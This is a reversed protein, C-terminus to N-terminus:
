LDEEAPPQGTEIGTRHRWIAQQWTERQEEYRLENRALRINRTDEVPIMVLTLPAFQLDIKNGKGGHRSKGIKMHVVGTRENPMKGAMSDPAWLGFIFDATEEVAGSDRAQDIELEMGFNGTRNVQHPAITAIRREKAVAKLTMIADSTREYREGRFGAAFYGLYDVALLDPPQGQRAEFEDCATLLESESVRNKDVLELNSRWFAVTGRSVQDPTSSLNYFNWIRRAREMWDGRTQELSVFLIKLDPQSLRMRHFMNLLTLTKGSNTKALVVAVQGPLLGPKLAWDLEDFGFKIGEADQIEAWELLAEDVSVLLTSKAFAATVVGDFEVRGWGEHVVLYSPDVEKPEAGDPVPLELIRAKAGLKDKVKVAGARGADDPDFLVRVQNAHDLSVNWSPQWVSAGPCAVSPYGIQALVLADFEGECLFIVDEDYAADVNFLRAQQGPPSVYKGHMDKGRILVVQGQVHYPLTVQGQLFDKIRGNREVVLGTSLMTPVAHGGAKLRRYLATDDESPAWGLQHREITADSLGRETRLWDAVKPHLNDAYFKAADRLVEHKAYVSDDIFQNPEDGFHRMLTKLNGKEGCRFCTHLGAEEGDSCNIYLRGRKGPQEGHFFCLTNYNEGGARQLKLGKGELYSRVDM